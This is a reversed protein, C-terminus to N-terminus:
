LEERSGEAMSFWVATKGPVTQPNGISASVAEVPVGRAQFFTRLSNLRAMLNQAQLRSEPSREPSDFRFVVRVDHNLLLDAIANLEATPEELADRGAEFPDSIIMRGVPPLSDGVPLIRSSSREHSSAFHFVWIGFVLVILLVSVYQTYFAKLIRRDVPQASM